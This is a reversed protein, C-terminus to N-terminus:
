AHKEELTIITQNCYAIVVGAIEASTIDEPIFYTKQFKGSLPPPFEWPFEEAGAGNAQSPSPEL